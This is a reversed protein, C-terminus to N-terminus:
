CNGGTYVGQTYGRHIGGTYVGQTYNHIAVVAVVVNMNTYASRSLVKGLYRLLVM